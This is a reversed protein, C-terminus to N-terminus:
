INGKKLKQFEALTQAKAQQHDVMPPPYSASNFLGVNPEHIETSSLKALQPLYRKIYAGEADFKKSQLYPNFVRFYPQADTGTSAAWQWGGVNSAQEYDMLHQAFLEEGLRWDILLDKTLFSAVIMRSRNHMWNMDYLQKISADVIPYGTEANKFKDWAEGQQRWPIARYQALLELNTSDPWYYLVAAYFERWILENVFSVNNEAGIAARYCERPSVLGFRLYPSLRSTHDNAPFNRQQQYQSIHRAIFNDLRVQGHDAPWYKSPNYQYGVQKLINAPEQKISIYQSGFLVVPTAIRGKIDVTYDDIDASVLVKRWVKSFPTFVKFPTGDDKLVRMPPVVLHDNHLHLCINHEALLKNVAQDRKIPQPEYDLGAYVDSARLQQALTLIEQKADGKVIIIEGGYLKNLQQQLYKLSDTIFSLRPDQKNSFRELISTDYVFALYVQRHQKLARFLPVHDYLRFDRRLWILANSM